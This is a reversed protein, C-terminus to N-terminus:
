AAEDVEGFIDPRFEQRIMRGGLALELEIAREAPIKDMRLWKWVHAQKVDGETLRASPDLGDVLKALATQGGAIAVARQVGPNVVAKYLRPLVM